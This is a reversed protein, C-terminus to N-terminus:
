RKGGRGSSYKQVDKGAVQPVSLGPLFHLDVKCNSLIESVCLHFVGLPLCCIFFVTVVCIHTMPRTYTGSFHETVWIRDDSKNASERIWTGFTETVKLVQVPNGISTIM